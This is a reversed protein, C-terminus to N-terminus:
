IARWAHDQDASLSASGHQRGGGHYAPQQPGHNILQLFTRIRTSRIGVAEVSGEVGSMIVWDGIEFPRDALVTISGFFNGLADKSALALAAGGIGLSGMLGTLPLDFVDAFMLIGVCVALAKLSKTLLPVLLDDFRSATREAKKHLFAGLLDILLFATWIAVVVAFIQVGVSLVRSVSPPLGIARTGWLWVSAQVFLGIPKWLGVSEKYDLRAHVWRFWARTAANLVLRTILDAAFGLFILVVLCIWQYDPILFHTDRFGSFLERLRVNLPVVITKGELDVLSERDQWVDYLAGIEGITKADFRWLGATDPKMVLLGADRKADLSDAVSHRDASRMYDALSYSTLQASVDDGAERNQAAVQDRDPVATFDVVALRDIVAKLEFALTSGRSRREDADIKSLDLAESAALTTM